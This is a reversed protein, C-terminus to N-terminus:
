EHVQPKAEKQIRRWNKPYDREIRWREAATEINEIFSERWGGAVDQRWVMKGGFDWSVLSEARAGSKTDLLGIALDVMEPRDDSAYFVCASCRSCFYRQVDPSSSYFTLTGWRPDRDEKEKEESSSTNKEVAKKLEISSSPFDTKGNSPSPFGLHRLLVFTWHFVDSGSSLRCSDCADFGGLSKNSVPDVFWPLESRPMAAFDATPRRLVLDVGGCHCRIPIEEEEDGDGAAEPTETNVPWDGRALATVDSGLEEGLKDTRWVRPRSGNGDGDCLWPVAGGDRTDGVFLHDVIEVLPSGLDVNALVGTQAGYRPVGDRESDPPLTEAFM